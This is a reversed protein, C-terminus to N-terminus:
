RTNSNQSAGGALGLERKHAGDEISPKQDMLSVALGRAGCGQKM